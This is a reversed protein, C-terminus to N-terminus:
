KVHQIWMLADDLSKFVAQEHPVESNSLITAFMNLMGFSNTDACVHATKGHVNRGTMHSKALKAITALSAYKVNPDYHVNILHYVVDKTIMPCYARIFEEIAPVTLEGSITFILLNDQRQEFTVPEMPEGDVQILFIGRSVTRSLIKISM